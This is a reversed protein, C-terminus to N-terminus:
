RDVICCLVTPTSRLVLFVSALDVIDERRQFDILIQRRYWPLSGHPWLEAAVLTAFRGGVDASEVQGRAPNQNEADFISSFGGNRKDALRDRM